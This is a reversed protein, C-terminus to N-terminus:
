KDSGPTSESPSRRLAVFLIIAMVITLAFGIPGFNAYLWRAFAAIPGEDGTPASLSDVRDLRAHARTSVLLIWVAMAGFMRTAVTVIRGIGHIRNGDDPSTM